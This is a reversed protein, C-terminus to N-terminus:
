KQRKEGERDKRKQTSAACLACAARSSAANAPWSMSHSFISPLPLGGWGSGSRSQQPGWSMLNKARQQETIQLSPRACPGSATRGAARGAPRRHQRPGPLFVLCFFRFSSSSPLPPPPPFSPPSSFSCFFFSSSIVVLMLLLSFSFLYCVHSIISRWRIRRQCRVFQM